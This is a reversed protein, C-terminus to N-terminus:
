DAIKVREITMEGNNWRVIGAFPSGKADFMDKQSIKEDPRTYRIRGADILKKLSAQTRLTVEADKSLGGDNDVLTSVKAGNFIGYEPGSLRVNVQRTVSDLPKLGERTMTFLHSNAPPAPNPDPTPDPTPAPAPPPTPQDGLIGRDTFVKTMIASLKGGDNKNEADVWANAMDRYTFDGQPANQVCRALLQIATQGTAQLATKADMGSAMNQAQVASLIDYFAGTWLRSFSHVESGLQDPGGDQPLTSPDAWKFSNIADRVYPGGTANQGLYDNIAVGLQEGTQAICNEKSLDGGTAQAVNDIARPDQFSMCIGMMDGFSEHFAGVDPTWSSFYAPRLGDLIAHGTEHSVVEGSAGSMIVQNTKPDTGHFFNVNQSDRAYYANFDEGADPVVGLKGQFAFNIPQGLAQGFTEVTKSVTAFTAAAVENPDGDPFVFKGDANPALPASLQVQSGSASGGDISVSHV